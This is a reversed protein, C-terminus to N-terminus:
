REAVQVFEESAEALEEAMKELSAFAKNNVDKMEVSILLHCLQVTMSSIIREIAKNQIMCGIDDFLFSEMEEPRHVSIIACNYSMSISM